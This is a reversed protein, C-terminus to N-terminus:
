HTTEGPRGGFPTDKNVRVIPDGAEQRTLQEELDRVREILEQSQVYRAQREYLDILNMCTKREAELATIAVRDSATQLRDVINRLQDVVKAITGYPKSEDIARMHAPLKDLSYHAV